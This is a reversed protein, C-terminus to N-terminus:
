AEYLGLDYVGFPLAGEEFFRAGFMLTRMATEQADGAPCLLTLPVGTQHIETLLTGYAGPTRHLACPDSVIVACVRGDTLARYLTEASSQPPLCAPRAGLATLLACLLQAADDAGGVILVRRARWQSLKEYM